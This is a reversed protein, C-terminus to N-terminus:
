ETFDQVPRVSHGCYRYSSENYFYSFRSDYWLSLSKSYDYYESYALVSSWFYGHSGSFSLSTGSGRGAAPLFISASSYSDKGTVRYGSVGNLTTLTWDCRSVLNSLDLHTPMWWGNGWHINAADHEPALAFIVEEGDKTVIWGESLLQDVGRGDTYIQPNPPNDTFSFNSNSGDTAVWTDGVRKYGVTDGWWFYYGSDEPNEAGINRDAWYPGGEWLQVKPAARM